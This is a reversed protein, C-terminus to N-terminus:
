FVAGFFVYIDKQFIVIVLLLVILADITRSRQYLYIRYDVEMQVVDQIWERDVVVKSKPKEAIRRIPKIAQANETFITM